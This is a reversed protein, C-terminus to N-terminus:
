YIGSVARSDPLMKQLEAACEAASKFRPEAIRDLFAIADKIRGDKILARLTAADDALDPRGDKPTSLNRAAMEKILEADSIEDFIEDIRVSVAIYTMALDLEGFTAAIAATIARDDSSRM